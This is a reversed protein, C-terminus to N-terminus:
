EPLRTSKKAIFTPIAGTNELFTAGASATDLGKDYWTKGIRRIVTIRTGAPAAESLRIYATEGDVSFEAQILEDAAPSVTGQLENYVSIPDKRLRRGGVFVELEYCPGFEEPIATQSDTGRFWSTKNVKNPVFALPGISTTSGDGVFDTREQSETYPISEQPGCDVIRSEISHNEPISTGFIGRRLKSLTTATKEFYSIREGNVLVIGPLNRSADPATLGSTDSVYMVTDYYTLDKTLVVDDSESHRKYQYINLMDKHIEYAVPDTFVSSGFQLIKIKDTSHNNNYDYPDVDVNTTLYVVGRPVSVKFDVDRTLRVGNKYVWVYSIDLPVARLKYATQGGTYEDQIIDM